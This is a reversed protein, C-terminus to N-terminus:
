HSTPHFIPYNEVPAEEIEMETITDPNLWCHLTRKKTKLGMMLLKHPEECLNKLTQKFSAIRMRSIEHHRSNEKMWIQFIIWLEETKKKADQGLILKARKINGDNSSGDNVITEGTYIIGGIGWEEIFEKVPDQVMEIM